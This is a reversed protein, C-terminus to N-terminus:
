LLLQRPHVTIARFMYLQCRLILLCDTCSCQTDRQFRYIKCFIICPGELTLVDSHNEYQFVSKLNCVNMNDRWQDSGLLHPSYLIKLSSQHLIIESVLPLNPRHYPVHWWDLDPNPVHPIGHLKHRLQEGTLLLLLKTLIGPVTPHLWFCCFNGRLIM